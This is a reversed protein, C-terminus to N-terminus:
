GNLGFSPFWLSFVSILDLDITFGLAPSLEFAIKLLFDGFSSFGVILYIIPLELKILTKFVLFQKKPALFGTVLTFVRLVLLGVKISEFAAKVVLPPKLV